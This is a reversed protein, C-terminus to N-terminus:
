ALTFVETNYDTNRRQQPLNENRERRTGDYFVTSFITAVTCNSGMFRFRSKYTTDWDVPFPVLRKGIPSSHLPSPEMSVGAKGRQM